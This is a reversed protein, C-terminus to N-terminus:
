AGYAVVQEEGGDGGGGGGGGLGRIGLLWKHVAPKGRMEAVTPTLGLGGGGGLGGVSFPSNHTVKQSAIMVAASAASTGTLLRHSHSHRAVGLLLVPFGGGSAPLPFGVLMM